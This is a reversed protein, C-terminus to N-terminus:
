TQENPETSISLFLNEYREKPSRCKGAGGGSDCGRSAIHPFLPFGFRIFRPKRGPRENRWFIIMDGMIDPVMARVVEPENDMRRSAM